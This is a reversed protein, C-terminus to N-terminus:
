FSPDHNVGCVEDWEGPNEDWTNIVSVHAVNQAALVIDLRSGEGDANWGSLAIAEPSMPPGPLSAIM